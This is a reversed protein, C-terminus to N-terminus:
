WSWIHIISRSDSFEKRIMISWCDTSSTGRGINDDEKNRRGYPPKTASSQSKSRASVSFVFWSVCFCMFCMRESRRHCLLFSLCVAFSLQCFHLKFFFQFSLFFGLRDERHNLVHMTKQHIRFESQSLRWGFYISRQIAHLQLHVLLAWCLDVIAFFLFLHLLLLIRSYFTIKIHVTVVHRLNISLYTTNEENNNSMIMITSFDNLLNKEM